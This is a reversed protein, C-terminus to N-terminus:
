GYKWLMQSNVLWTHVCSISPMCPRHVDEWMAHCASVHAKGMMWKVPFSGRSNFTKQKIVGAVTPYQVLHVTLCPRVGATYHGSAPTRGHHQVVACLAYEAGSRHRADPCGEAM